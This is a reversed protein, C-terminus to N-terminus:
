KDEKPLLEKKGNRVIYIEDWGEDYTPPEFPYDCRKNWGKRAQRVEQPTNLWICRTGKGQYARILLERQYQQHYIGEVVVDGNKAYIQHIVGRYVGYKDFHIVDDFQEAYTTKGARPLGCILTLM